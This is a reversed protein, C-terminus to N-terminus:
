RTIERQIIEFMRLWHDIKRYGNKGAEMSSESMMSDMTNSYGFHLPQLGTTLTVM